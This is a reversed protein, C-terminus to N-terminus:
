MAVFILSYSPSHPHKTDESTNSNNQLIWYNCDFTDQIPELDNNASFEPLRSFRSNCQTHSPFPPPHNRVGHPASTLSSYVRWSQYLRSFSGNGSDAPCLVVLLLTLVVPTRLDTIHHVNLWIETHLHWSEWGAILPVGATTKQM